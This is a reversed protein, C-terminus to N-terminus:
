PSSDEESGRLLAETIEISASSADSWAAPSGHNVSVKSLIDEAERTAMRRSICWAVAWLVVPWALWGYVILLTNQIGSASRLCNPPTANDCSYTPSLADEIMGIIPASPVDGLAHIVVLSMGLALPRMSVPVSAMIAMQTATIQGLLLTAGVAFFFFYTITAGPLQVCAAAAFMCATAGSVLVVMIKLSHRLVPLNSPEAIMEGILIEGKNGGVPASVTVAKKDVLYGGLISGIVGSASVTAGIALAAKDQTNLLGLAVIVNGGFSAIGAFVGIYGAYGFVILWYMPLQRFVRTYALLTNCISLKRTEIVDIAAEQPADEVQCATHEMRTHAWAIAAVLLLMPVVAYLEWLFANRWGWHTAIQSAYV